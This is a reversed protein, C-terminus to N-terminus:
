VGGEAQHGLTGAMAVAISRPGTFPERGHAVLLNDVLLVDGDHWPASRTEAAYAARITALVDDEIPSGDGYYSNTPLDAPGFQDTLGRAVDPPLSSVHFFAAHNFWTEAGTAPHVAVAPRDQETRLGGDPRWRARIGNEDCYREVEARDDTQFVERWSLGVGDHFNRVYRVGLERFRAVVPPPLRRLVGRCDALPTTGGSSPARLCCFVLRAPFYRQYSSENHLPITQDAPYETSTYVGDALRTRPSSRERYPLPTGALAETTAALEALTVGFGAFMLAGYEALWGDVVDRNAGAWATLSIDSLRHVRRPLGGDDHALGVWDRTDGPVVQRRAVGAGPWSGTM